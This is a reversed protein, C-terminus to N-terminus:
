FQKSIGLIIMNQTLNLLQNAGSRKIFSYRLSGSLTDSFSQQLGTSAITTTTTGALAGGNSVIQSHSASTSWTLTPELQHTWQLSLTRTDSSTSTAASGGTATQSSLVVTASILDRDLTTALNMNLTKFRFVGPQVFGASNNAFLTANNQTDVLAGTGSVKATDLQRRVNELQTGLTESYNLTTTTRPTLTYFADASLSLAGEKKGYSLTIKSEANPTVTAGIDWTLGNVNQGQGGSYNINQQGITGFVTFTRDIAYSTKNTVTQRTSTFTRNALATTLGLTNTGDSSGNSQTMQLDTTNQIAGFVDGTVFNAIQETTVMTQGNTGGTPFPLSTFGTAGASRTYNASYGIKGTGYDGFKNMLYPSVGFSSTQTLSNRTQGAAAGATGNFTGANLAGTTGGLGGGAGGALGNRNQVGAIARVDVFALNPIVTILGTGNLQHSLANQSSTRAYMAITPSYDFRMTVRQTEGSISLGPSVYTILDWRRPRNVQLVNDTFMQQLELRPLITWGPGGTGALGNALQLQQRLDRADPGALETGKPVATDGAPDFLPFAAAPAIGFVLWAFTANRLIPARGPTVAVAPYGRSSREAM